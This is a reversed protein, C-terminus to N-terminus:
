TIVLVTTRMIGEEWEGEKGEQWGRFCLLCCLNVPEERGGPRGIQAALSCINRSILLLTPSLLPPSEKM